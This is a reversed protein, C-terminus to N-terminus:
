QPMPGKITRTKGEVAWPPNSPDNLNAKMRWLGRIAAGQSFAQNTNNAQGPVGEPYSLPPVLTDAKPWSWLGLPSIM